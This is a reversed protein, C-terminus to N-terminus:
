ILINVNDSARTIATYFRRKAVDMDLFPYKNQDLIDPADIYVSTYTSGQSKDTTLCYGYDLDAFPQEYYQDFLEIIIERMINLADPKIFKNGKDFYDKIYKRGREIDKNYIKKNYIVIIPIEEEIKKYTFYLQWVKYINNMSKNFMNVFKTLYDKVNKMYDDIYLEILSTETKMKEDLKEMIVLIDYKQCLFTENIEIDKVIIPMSSYFIKEDIKTKIKYFNNFILHEGKIFKKKTINGLLKKRIKLNYDNRTENTWVLIVGDNNKCFEDIFHKKDFYFKIYDCSHSLLEDRPNKKENILWDRIFKSLDIIGKNNARMITNLETKNMKLKFVSSNKEKPPPLQASDGTFLVFGRCYNEFFTDHNEIDNNIDNVNEKNIMSSEDIIVLNYKNIINIFKEGRRFYINHNIDLFRRYTLLKSITFFIVKLKNITGTYSDILKFNKVTGVKERIVDLAKNTPSALIITKEGYLIEVLLGYIRKEDKEIYEMLVNSINKENYNKLNLKFLKSFEKLILMEEFANIQLIYKILTTKGTGASGYLGYKLKNDNFIHRYVKWLVKM